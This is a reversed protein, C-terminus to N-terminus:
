CQFSLVSGVGGGGGQITSIFILGLLLQKRGSIISYLLRFYLPQHFMSTWTNCGGGFIQVDVAPLHSMRKNTVRKWVGEIKMCNVKSRHVEYDMVKKGEMPISFVCDIKQIFIGIIFSLNTFPLLTKCM